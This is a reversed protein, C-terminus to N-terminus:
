KILQVLLNINEPSQAMYGNVSTISRLANLAVNYDNNSLISKLWQNNSAIIQEAENQGTDTGEFEMQVDASPEVENGAAQPVSEQQENAVQLGLLGGLKQSDMGMINAALTGFTTIIAQTGKYESTKHKLDSEFDKKAREMENKAYFNERELVQYESQIKELRLKLKENESETRELQRTLGELEKESTIAKIHAQIVNDPGGLAGLASMGNNEVVDQRAIAVDVQRYPNRQFQKDTKRFLKIRMKTADGQEIERVTNSFVDEGKQPTSNYADYSLPNSSSNTMFQFYDGEKKINKALVQNLLENIFEM